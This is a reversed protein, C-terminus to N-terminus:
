AMGKAETRQSHSMMRPTMTPLWMRGVLKQPLAAAHNTRLGQITFSSSKTTTM